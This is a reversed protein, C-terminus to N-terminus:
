TRSSVFGVLKNNKAISQHSKNVLERYTNWLKGPFQGLQGIIFPINEANLDKRFNNILAELKEGYMLANRTNCDSEGQHWLIGKLEGDKL